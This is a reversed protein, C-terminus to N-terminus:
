NESDFDDNAVEEGWKKIMGIFDKVMVVTLMILGIGCVFCVGYILIAICFGCLVEMLSVM